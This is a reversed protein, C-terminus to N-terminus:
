QPTLMLFASDHSDLTVSYSGSFTNIDKRAWVDRVAVNSTGAPMGPVSSFPLTLNASTAAHNMLLVAIQKSNVPKNWFQWAGVGGAVGTAKGLVVKETAEMFVSGSFGAWAQNVAIVEKNSILPWVQDMVTDNQLDHSLILPSSVISWAGFHSRTEAPSLGPDGAGGPGHQCGVELMDAPLLTRTHPSAHTRPASTLPPSATGVESHCLRKDAM